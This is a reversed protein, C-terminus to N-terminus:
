NRTINTGQYPETRGYDVEMKNELWNFILVPNRIINVINKISKNLSAKLMYKIPLNGIEYYNNEDVLYYDIPEPKYIEYQIQRAQYIEFDVRISKSFNQYDEKEYFDSMTFTYIENPKLTKAIHRAVNELIKRHFDQLFSDGYKGILEHPFSDQYSFRVPRDSRFLSEDYYYGYKQFNNM